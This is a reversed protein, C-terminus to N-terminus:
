YKGPVYSPTIPEGISRSITDLHVGAFAAITAPIKLIEFIGLGCIDFVESVGVDFKENKLTRMVDENNLVRSITEKENNTDHMQPDVPIKIINKTLKLGTKDMQEIYMVPMLVTQLVLQEGSTWAFTTSFGIDFFDFKCCPQSFAIDRISRRNDFCRCNALLRESLLTVDSTSSWVSGSELTVTAWISSWTVVMYDTRQLMKYGSFAKGFDIIHCSVQPAPFQALSSRGIANSISNNLKPNEVVGVGSKAKERFFICSRFLKVVAFAILVFAFVCLLLFDILYYQLFSLHRGYPDLNPLAGFRAAFESHSVLLQKPSIPQNRLIESLLHANEFFSVDNLIKRLSDRLIQPHELDRKMIVIGCGHKSLMNANRTQDAFIPIQFIPILEHHQVTFHYQSELIAPKGMHALETVSGMGGHTIFVTLRADALLDNQPVWSSLHVNKLHEAITSGEEEYKWIFTTEPMSEFVELLTKKYEHPMYVSKAVSGFSVLVTTNRKNLIDDWEKPLDNTEPGMSVTIGGIAVTKHLTPRPFDLYPNSNTFVFSVKSILEDYCKFQTGYKARFANIEEDYTRTYFTNGLLVNFFNEIRDIFNMRDGKASMAALGCIGFVESIGVDFKEKELMKLLKEDRFVGECLLLLRSSM